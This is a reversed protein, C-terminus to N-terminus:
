RLILHASTLKLLVKNESGKSSPINYPKIIPIFVQIRTKTKIHTLAEKGLTLNSWNIDMQQVINSGRTIDKATNTGHIIYLKPIIGLLIDNNYVFKYLM